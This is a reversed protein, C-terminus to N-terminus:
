EEEPSKPLPMWYEFDDTTLKSRGGCYYCTEWGGVIYEDIDPEWIAVHIGYKKSLVLCEDPPKQEKVSMWEMM